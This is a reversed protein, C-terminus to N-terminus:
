LSVLKRSALTRDERYRDRPLASFNMSLALILPERFSIFRRAAYKDIEPEFTLIFVFRVLEFWSPDFQSLEIFNYINERTQVFKPFHVALLIFNSEIRRRETSAFRITDEGNSSKSLNACIDASYSKENWQTTKVHVSGSDNIFVYIYIYM